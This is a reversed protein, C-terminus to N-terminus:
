SYNDACLEGPSPCGAARGLGPAPAGGPHRARGALAAATAALAAMLVNVVLAASSLSFAGRTAAAVLAGGCGICLASATADSIQLAASDAGRRAPPTMALLLVGISPMALGAGLGALLWVPYALWGPVGPQAVAAMSLAAAAVLVFGVRVLRHRALGRHRGQWWSAGSWGLAGAMLPAGAAVPSYGHVLTLMLPVLSGVTFASGALAGRLAIVAPVGARVAVTGAALDRVATPLATAVAM